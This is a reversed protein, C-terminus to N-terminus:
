ELLATLQSCTANEDMRAAFQKLLVFPTVGLSASIHRVVSGLALCDDLARHARLSPPGSCSRFAGQLKNCEGTYDTVRLVDLTDVYVWAALDASAIGARLVEACLFPFDFKVGNHSVIIVDLDPKMATAGHQDDESDDEADLASLSAYRLFESFRLFAEAFCPGALLEDHAIGHVSPQEPYAVRGPNVVTSFVCSSDELVRAIEVIRGSLCHLSDTELDMYCVIADRVHAPEAFFLVTHLLCFPSGKRLPDAVCRGLSDRMNSSSTISCRQGSKTTGCCRASAKSVLM